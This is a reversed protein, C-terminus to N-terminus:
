HTFYYLTTFTCTSISIKSLNKLFKTKLDTEISQYAKIYNVCELDVTQAYKPNIQILTLFTQKSTNINQSISYNNILRFAIHHLRKIKTDSVKLKFFCYGKTLEFSIM